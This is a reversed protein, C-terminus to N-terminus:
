AVPNPLTLTALRKAFQPVTTEVSALALYAVARRSAKEAAAGRLLRCTRSAISDLPRM